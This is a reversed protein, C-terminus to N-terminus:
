GNLSWSTSSLQHSFGYQCYKQPPSNKSCLGGVSWAVILRQRLREPSAPAFSIIMSVKTEASLFLTAFFFSKSRTFTSVVTCSFFTRKGVSARM